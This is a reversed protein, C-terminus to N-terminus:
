TSPTGRPDPDPPDLRASARDLLDCDYAYTLIARAEAVRCWRVEDVEANPAFEHEVASPKMLWYRVVKPRGRGDRYRTEGLPERLECRLGTEEEVERAATAEPTEGPDAKGKPFSWDDYRPRHVLLVELREPPSARWVVGGAAEIEGDPKVM